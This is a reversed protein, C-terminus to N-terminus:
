KTLIIDIVANVDAINVEGDGNVDSTAMDGSGMLIYAILANVDAINVEYDCNVDGPLFPQPGPEDFGPYHCYLSKLNIEYEKEEASKTMTFKIAKINIPYTGVYDTGGLEKFNLLLLHDVGPEFYAQGEEPEFMIYNTKTYFYNRTDIQVYDIPMTSNFVLGVTDPLGYLMLNKTLKINPARNTVYSFTMSGTEENLVLDKTGTGRLTWGDWGEYRYPADSIEVNVKGKISYPGLDCRIYTSGNNEGTLVGNNITAVESNDITWPLDSTDYFFIKNVM